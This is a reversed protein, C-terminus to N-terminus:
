RGRTERTTPRKAASAVKKATKTAVKKSKATEKAAGTSKATKTARRKAPGAKTAGNRANAPSSRRKSRSRTRGVVILSGMTPTFTSQEGTSWKVQLLSEIVGTVVGDRPAQSVKTSAVQVRDGIHAM